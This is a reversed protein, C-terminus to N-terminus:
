CHEIEIRLSYSCFAPKEQEIIQRLLQEDIPSDPQARLRVDFHYPKGGGIIADEGVHALGFLCGQGFPETISISKDEERDIHEDLPLGTYLHLYFRLGKRTGRCRYIEVARRILRRQHALDIQADISWDVWHALFPLLAQPATLPDLYAWMSTFSNVVPDFAQEFIKIFRHIYDVEQYVIPLFTTYTSQPRVNLEFNSEQIPSSSSGQSLSQSAYISLCGQFNLQNGQSGQLADQGEFFDDPILFWLDAHRSKKAAVELTVLDSGAGIATGSTQVMSNQPATKFQPASDVDAQVQCWELPFTGRLKLTLHQPQSEWNKIELAVRCLEGPYVVIQSQQQSGETAETGLMRGGGQSAIASIQMPSIQLSVSKSTLVPVM